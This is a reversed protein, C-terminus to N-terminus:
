WKLPYWLSSTACNLTVRPMYFQFLLERYFSQWRTQIPPCRLHVFSSQNQRSIPTWVRFIQYSIKSLGELNFNLCTGVMQLPLFELTTKNSAEVCSSQFNSLYIVWYKFWAKQYWIGFWNVLIKFQNRLFSKQVASFHKQFRVFHCTYWQLLM